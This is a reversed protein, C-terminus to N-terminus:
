KHSCMDSVFEAVREFTREVHIASPLGPVDTRDSLYAVCPTGYRLALRAESATGEAGPLVVVVDSSLVNLHNRSLAGEGDIGVQGLHTKIAVEIWPNPYGHPSHGSGQESSGPIIGIAIGVRAEVNVFAESVAAMVGAGGGTLLHYGSRAVWEGVRWSRERHPERSSGMVGVVSLRTLNEM